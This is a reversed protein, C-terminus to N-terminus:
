RVGANGMTMKVLVLSVSAHSHDLHTSVHSPVLLVQIVSM